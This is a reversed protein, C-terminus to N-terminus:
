LTALTEARTAHLDTWGWALQSNSAALDQWHVFDRIMQDFGIWKFQDLEHGFLGSTEGTFITPVYTGERSPEPPIQYPNLWQNVIQFRDYGCAFLMALDQPATAEVSVFKPRRSDTLLQNVFLRDGGEIDCKIFYPTGYSDLLEALTTTEVTIRHSGGLGKEAQDQYLSGWDDKGPNTYFDSTEGAKSALAREVVTLKGQNIWDAYRERCSNALDPSAEVGVVNFGKKLYFESDLGKHLGIDFILQM